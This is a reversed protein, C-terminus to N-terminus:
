QPLIVSELVHVTANTSEVDNGVLAAGGVTIRGDIVRVPLRQGGLTEVTGYTALDLASLRGPIVHLKLVDQLRTKNDPELLSGLLKQDLAAFAGDTPALITLPTDGNIAEVLGAARVATLLTGFLGANKAVTVVDDTAPLMVSGLVHVIGNDAAVDATLVKAGGIFVGDPRVDVSVRQGSLTRLESERIVDAATMRGAVVHYGLVEQLTALNGAELLSEVLGTELAAFARDTPAFVTLEDSGSLLDVYGAAKVAAVLTNHSGTSVAVDVISKRQAESPDAEVSNFGLVAATALAVPLAITALRNM